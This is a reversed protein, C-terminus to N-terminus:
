TDGLSRPDDQYSGNLLRKTEATATPGCEQVKEIMDRLWDECNRFFPETISGGALATRDMGSCFARGAGRVVILM